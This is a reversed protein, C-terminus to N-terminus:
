NIDAMAHLTRSTDATWQGSVNRAILAVPTPWSAERYYCLRTQDSLQFGFQVAYADPTVKWHQDSCGPYADSIWETHSRHLNIVSLSSGSGFVFCAVLLLFCIGPMIAATVRTLGTKQRTGAIMQQHNM